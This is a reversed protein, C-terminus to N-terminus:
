GGGYRGHPHGAAPTAATPPAKVQEAVAAGASVFADMCTMAAVTVTLGLLMPPHRRIM